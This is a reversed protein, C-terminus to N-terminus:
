GSFPVECGKIRFVGRELDICTHNAKLMDLGLLLDYGKHICVTLFFTASHM